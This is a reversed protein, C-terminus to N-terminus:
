GEYNPKLLQCVHVFIEVENLPESQSSCYASQLLSNLTLFRKSVGEVKHMRLCCVTLHIAVYCHHYVM